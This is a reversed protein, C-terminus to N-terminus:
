KGQGPKKLPEQLILVMNTMIDEPPPPPQGPLPRIRAAKQAALLKEKTTVGQVQVIQGQALNSFEAEYGPLAQDKGKGKAKILEDRSPRKLNGRDDFIMPMAMTRIKADDTVVFSLRLNRGKGAAMEISFNRDSERVENVKGAFIGQKIYASPPAAPKEPKETEDKKADKKEDKKADKGDKKADKGKDTEKEKPADKGDKEATPKAAGPEQASILPVGALLFALLVPRWWRGHQTMASVEMWGVVELYDTPPILDMAANSTVKAHTSQWM